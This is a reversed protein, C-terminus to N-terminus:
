YCGSVPTKRNRGAGLTSQPWLVVYGFVVVLSGTELLVKGVQTCLSFRDRLLVSVSAQMVSLACDSVANGALVVSLWIAFPLPLLMVLLFWPLM